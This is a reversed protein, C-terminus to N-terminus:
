KQGAARAARVAKAISALSRVGFLLAGSAPGLHADVTADIADDDARDLARALEDLVGRSAMLEGGIAHRGRDVVAGVLGMREAVLAGFPADETRPDLARLGGLEFSVVEGNARTAYADVIAAVVDATAVPAGRLSSLTSPTKDMWREVAGHALDDAPDLGFPADVAVLAEIGVGGTARDHTVGLWAVPAGRAWVFDRGTYTAPIGLRALAGLLPRVQRNLARSPDPSGEFAAASALELAVFVQGRQARIATGGTSRRALQTGVRAVRALDVTSAARQFSGLVIADAEVPAVVLAGERAGSRRLADALLAGGLRTAHVPGPTAIGLRAAM